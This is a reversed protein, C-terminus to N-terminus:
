GPRVTGRKGKRFGAIEPLTIVGDKNADIAAFNKCWPSRVGRKGACAEAQTLAGDRNTDFKAFREATRNPRSAAQAPQAIASSACVAVIMAILASKM